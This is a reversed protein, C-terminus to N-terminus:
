LDLEKRYKRIASDGLKIGLSHFQQSLEKSSADPKEFLFRRLLEKNANRAERAQVPAGGQNRPQEEGLRGCEGPPKHLSFDGTEDIFPRGSLQFPGCPEFDRAKLNEVHILNTSKDLQKLGWATALVAGLEGSGRIMNELNMEAEKRFQKPSHFLLLVSRAGASLLGLADASLGAAVESASAEDVAGMFRIATDTVIHADKAALLLRPDDLPVTQGKTLTRVFLRTGVYPLLRMLRLRHAFPGATSEPILYLVRDSRERITFHDWLKGQGDLLKKVVSLALFTKGHDPLGAIANLAHAQLFGEISFTLPPASELEERTHFLERWNEAASRMAQHLDPIFADPDAAWMEGIDKHPIRVRVVREPPLLKQLEDMKKQGHTDQDGILYIRKHRRLLELDEASVKSSTSLLAVANFGTSAALALDPPGEFVLIHEASPNLLTAGYLGDISSGEFQTFLRSGDFSRLQIGRLEGAVYHPLALAPKEVWTDGDRFKWSPVFGWKLEMAVRPSVGRSEIYRLCEPSGSLAIQMQEVAEDTGKLAAPKTNAHPAAGNSNPSLDKTEIGLATCIEEVTHGAFCKLLIRGDNGEGISLSPKRDDHKHGPVPCRAIWGAGSRRAHLREALEEATM